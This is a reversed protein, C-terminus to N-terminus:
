GADSRSLSLSSAAVIGPVPSCTSRVAAGPAPAPGTDAAKHLAVLRGGEGIATKLAADAQQWRRTAARHEGQKQEYMARVSAPDALAGSDRLKKFAALASRAARFCSTAESANKELGALDENWLGLLVELAM